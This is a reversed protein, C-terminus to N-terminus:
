QNRTVQFINIRNNSARKCEFAREREWDFPASKSNGFPFFFGFLFYYIGVFGGYKETHETM